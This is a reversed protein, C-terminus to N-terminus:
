ANDNRGRRGEKKVKRGKKVDSYSVVEENDGCCVRTLMERDAVRTQTEEVRGTDM